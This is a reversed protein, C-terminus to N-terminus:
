TDLVVLQNGSGFALIFIPDHIIKNPVGAFFITTVIDNDPHTSRIKVSLNYYEGLFM